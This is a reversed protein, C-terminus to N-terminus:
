KAIGGTLKQNVEEWFILINLCFAYMCNLLKAWQLAGQGQKCSLFLKYIGEQKVIKQIEGAAPHISSVADPDQGNWNNQDDRDVDEDDDVHDPDDLSVPIESRIVPATFSLFQRLRKRLNRFVM